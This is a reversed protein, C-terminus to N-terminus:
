CQQSHEVMDSISTSTVMLSNFDVSEASGFEIGGKTKLAQESYM